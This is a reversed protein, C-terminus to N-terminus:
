DKILYIKKTLELMQLAEIFDRGFRKDFPNITKCLWTDFLSQFKHRLIPYDLILSSLFNEDNMAIAMIIYPKVLEPYSNCWDQDSLFFKHAQEAEFFIRNWLYVSAVIHYGSIRHNIDEDHPLIKEGIEVLSLALEKKDNQAQQLYLYALKLFGQENGVLLSEIFFKEANEPNNKSEIEINGLFDLLLKPAELNQSELINLCRIFYAYATNPMNLYIYYTSGILFDAFYEKGEFPRLIDFLKQHDTGFYKIAERINESIAFEILETPVSFNRKTYSFDKEPKDEGKPFSFLNQFSIECQLCAQYEKSEPLRFTYEVKSCVSVLSKLYTIIVTRWATRSEFNEGNSKIIELFASTTESKLKTSTWRIVISYGSELEKIEYFIEGTKCTFNMVGLSDHLFGFLKGKYEEKVNLQKLVTGDNIIGFVKWNADQYTYSNM